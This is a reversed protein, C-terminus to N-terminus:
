LHWCAAAGDYREVIYVTWFFSVSINKTIDEIFEPSQSSIHYVTEQIFKGCFWIIMHDYSKSEGRRFLAEVSGQRAFTYKYDDVLMQQGQLRDLTRQTITLSESAYLTYTNHM